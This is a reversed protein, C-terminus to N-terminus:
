KSVSKIRKRDRIGFLSVDMKRLLETAGRYKSTVQHARRNNRAICEVVGAKRLALVVERVGEDSVVRGSHVLMSLVGRAGGLTGAVKAYKALFQLPTVASPTFSRQAKMHAFLSNIVKAADDRFRNLVTEVERLEGVTNGKGGLPPKLSRLVHRVEFRVRKNTKAYIVVSVGERIVVTVVPSNHHKKLESRRRIRDYHSLSIEREGFAAVLPRLDYVLKIPDPAAFEWYSEVTKLTYSRQPLDAAELECLRMVSQFESDLAKFTENLYSRLAKQWAVGGANARLLPEDRLWNDCPGRNDPSRELAYEKQVGYSLAHKTLNRLRQPAGDSFWQHALFRTPNLELRLEVHATKQGPVDSSVKRIRCLGGFLPRGLGSTGMPGIQQKRITVPKRTLSPARNFIRLGSGDSQALMRRFRDIAEDTGHLRLFDRCVLEIKDQRGKSPKVVASLSFPKLLSKKRHTTNRGEM